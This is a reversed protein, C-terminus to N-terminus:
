SRTRRDPKGRWGGVARARADFGGFRHVYESVPTGYGDRTDVAGGTELYTKLNWVGVLHAGAILGSKTIAVGGVTQGEYKGLNLANLDDNINAFWAQQAADQAPASQLFGVKDYVGFSAAKASWGGIFDIGWTSDGNYFGVAKLAEEGFQFRGLYGLSSVFGYNNGSENKGLASLLDSYTGASM